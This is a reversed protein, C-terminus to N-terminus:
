SDTSVCLAVDMALNVMQIESGNYYVHCKTLSM